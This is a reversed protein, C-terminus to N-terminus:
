ILEKISDCIYKIEQKNLGSGSPLYLGQRSINASVPFKEKAALGIKKFVPQNHLSIFFTRTEIGKDRLKNMLQERTLPFDKELVLGYMWYVNKVNKREVPFQIGPVDKLFKTYLVANKRRLNVYKEIQEFQALGIAAQMNTMRFNFGLEEHWFRKEKLFSLNKLRQCREALKKNSTLVMGGEGCTIIKNAYFSFCSIHGFGGAKKGKYEAGHAEAADEVVYLKYKRAIKMIADMDCPHGYMHVPIIAKTKKTIRAEILAPNINWTDPEVDVFIPKAGCYVAAFATSAISFAPMIVEDGPGIKLAALALHLATTGNTTAIGYKQGCYQSFSEEFKSIYEGASSIWNTKICDNLYREEKKGLYPVCVPIM